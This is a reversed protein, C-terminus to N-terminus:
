WRPQSGAAEGARLLLGREKRVLLRLSHQQTSDAKHEASWVRRTAAQSGTGKVWNVSWNRM